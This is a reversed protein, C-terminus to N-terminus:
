AAVPAREPVLGQAPRRRPVGRPLLPRRHAQHQLRRCGLRPRPHDARPLPLRAPVPRPLGRRRGEEDPGAPGQPRHGLSDEPDRVLRQGSFSKSEPWIGSDLVAVVVGDGAKARGGAERQWAGHKGSLGLFDPTDWTDLHQRRDKELLLVDRNGALEAAQRATLRATFGNAALTFSREVTAGVKRALTEQRGRLHATYDVVKTSRADFHQGPAVRTAAFRGRGGPYTSAAPERMLVIYRGAGLETTGRGRVAGSQHGEGAAVAVPVASLLGAVVAGAAVLALARTRARRGTSAISVTHERDCASARDLPPGRQSGAFDPRARM